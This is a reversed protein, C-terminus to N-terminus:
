ILGHESFRKKCKGRLLSLKEEIEVEPSSITELNALVKNVELKRELESEIRAACEESLHLLSREVENRIASSSRTYSIIGLGACVVLLLVIYYAAIKHGFSKFQLM